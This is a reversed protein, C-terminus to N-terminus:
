VPSTHTRLLLNEGVYFTDQMDRAPHDEPINLAKFNFFDTEIEPGEKVSFGLCNFIELIENKVLTLPHLSGIAGKMSLTIDLKEDELRKLLESKKLQKEKAEFNAELLVRGDNILKGAAPKDSPSVNKLGRLLGTYEGSKGLYRVRVNNLEDTSVANAVLESCEAVLRDIQEKM